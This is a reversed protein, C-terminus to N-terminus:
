LPDAQVTLWAGLPRLNRIGTGAPVGAAGEGILLHTANGSDLKGGWIVGELLAREMMEYGSAKEFAMLWLISRQPDVGIFARAGFTDADSMANPHAVGEYIQYGQIGIGLRAAALSAADPPKNLLAHVDNNADWYILYSHEHVHSVQGDTVLTELSRVPAGPPCRWIQEPFYRTTNILVRAGSNRLGWDAFALRFHPSVPDQRNVPFGFSRNALRVGPEKFHVEVIMVRGGANRDVTLFVGRYIEKRQMEDPRHAQWFILCGVVAILGIALAVILM